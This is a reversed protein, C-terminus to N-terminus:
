WREESFFTPERNRIMKDKGDAMNHCRVCLYELNDLELALHPHTKVPKIHNVDMKIKRGRRDRTARTTVKGNQKCHECENKARQIAQLRLAKWEKSKYFKMLKNEKILQMLFETRM